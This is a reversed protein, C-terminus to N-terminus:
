RFGACSYRDSSFACTNPDATDEGILYRYLWEAFSM